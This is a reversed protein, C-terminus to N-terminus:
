NRVDSSHDLTIKKHNIGNLIEQLDIGTSERLGDVVQSTTKMVDGVLKPANGDGYMVIKETSALPSAANKVIEPLKNLYMEVISAEGMQKMAEAKKLIAEAEADGTARIGAAEQEKAYKLADAKVKESESNQIVEYKEAEAAKQRRYLDADAEQQAAYRNADAKKRVSADLLREQIDIEKNKIEVEREKLALEANAKAINLSKEQENKQIQYAADAEAQKTDSSKKLEAQKILLDTNQQAINAESDTSAKNAEEQAKATAIQIDREGNAKAIAASKKIQTINDMGLNEIIKNEDSFSQITLNVVELGMAKMEPAASSQINSAFTDRDHVLESLKMKGIIERMNGELVQQSITSIEDEQKYLFNRAATRIDEDSQGVRVNAVGDIYINIYEETPVSDTKIDVQMLKLPLQDVREIFPIRFGSKGVLIRPKAKLGSIIFATDPPAKLYGLALFLVVIVSIVLGIIIGAHSTIFAIFSVM